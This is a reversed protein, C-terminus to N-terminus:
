MSSKQNESTGVSTQSFMKRRQRGLSELCGPKPDGMLWGGDGRDVVYSTLEAGEVRCCENMDLGKRQGLGFQLLDAYLCAFPRLYWMAWPLQLKAGGFSRLCSLSRKSRFLLSLSCCAASSESSKLQSARGSSANKGQVLFCFTLLCKQWTRIM